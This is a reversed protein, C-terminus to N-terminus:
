SGGLRNIERQYERRGGIYKNGLQPQHGPVFGDRDRRISSISSKYGNRIIDVSSEKCYENAAHLTMWDERGDSFTFYYYRKRNM